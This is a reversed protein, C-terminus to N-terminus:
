VSWKDIQNFLAVLADFEEFNERFPVPIFIVKTDIKRVELCKLVNYYAFNCYSTGPNQSIRYTIKNKDLITLLKELPFNTKLYDKKQKCMTEIALGKILPKQGFMIIYDYKQDEFLADIEWIITTYDNTFLFKEYKESLRDLLIASSSVDNKHAKKFGTLLVKNQKMGIEVM